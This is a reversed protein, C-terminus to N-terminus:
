CEYSAYLSRVTPPIGAASTAHLAVEAGLSSCRGNCNYLIQPADEGKHTVVTGSRRICSASSM